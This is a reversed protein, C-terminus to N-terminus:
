VPGLVLMLSIFTLLDHHMGELVKSSSFPFMHLTLTLSFMSVYPHGHATPDRTDLTGLEM